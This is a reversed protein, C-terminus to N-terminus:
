ILTINGMHQKLLCISGHMVLYRDFTDIIGFTPFGLVEMYRMVDIRLKHVPIDQWDHEEDTFFFM